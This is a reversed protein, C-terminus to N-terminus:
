IPLFRPCFKGIFKIRKVSDFLRKPAVKESWRYIEYIKKKIEKKKYM